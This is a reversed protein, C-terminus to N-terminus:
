NGHHRRRAAGTRATNSPRRGTTGVSSLASSEGLIDIENLGGPTSWTWRPGAAQWILCNTPDHEDIMFRAKVILDKARTWMARLEARSKALLINDEAWTLCRLLRDGTRVGWEHREGEEERQRWVDREMHWTFMPPSSMSELLLTWLESNALESNASWADCPVDRPLPVLCTEPIRRLSFGLGVGGSQEVNAEPSSCQAHAPRPGESRIPLHHPVRRRM